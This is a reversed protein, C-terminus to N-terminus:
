RLCCINSMHVQSLIHNAAPQQQPPPPLPPQQAPGPVQTRVPQQPMPPNYVVPTGDPNLFPQGSLNFFFLCGSVSLEIIRTQLFNLCIYKCCFFHILLM